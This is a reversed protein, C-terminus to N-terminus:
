PLVTQVTRLGNESAFNGEVRVSLRLTVWDFGPAVALGEIQMLTTTM